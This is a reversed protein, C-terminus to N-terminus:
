LAIAVNQIPYIAVHTVTLTNLSALTINSAHAIYGM